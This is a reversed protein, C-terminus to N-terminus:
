ILNQTEHVGLLSLLADKDIPKHLCAEAGRAIIRNINEQSPFGTMAIIRIAKTTPDAKLRKCVQFGDLGPMMLDLLIINPLFKQVIRGASFRDDATDVVIDLPLSRLLESLYGSLQKDDDVVLVRLRNDDPLQLSLGREKAFREVDHSMFRRHGGPTTQATLAGKQALQRVTIPSVMLMEAVEHPTLYNRNKLAM